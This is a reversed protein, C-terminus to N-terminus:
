GAKQASTEPYPLPSNLIAQRTELEAARTGPLMEPLKCPCGPDECHWYGRQEIAARTTAKVARSLERVERTEFQLRERLRNRRITAARLLARLTRQRTTLETM